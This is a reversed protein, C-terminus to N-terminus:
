SVDAGHTGVEKAIPGIYYLQAMSLIAGVWGVVFATGAALGIPLKTKDAWATWDYGKSRRFILQEEVTIAIWIAVWYGMLALFNTFIVALSNRGALACATYVIVGVTNWIVRPVRAAYRGLIQFDIGASYTPAIMNNIIGLALIVACFKGFGGLRNYGAAISAGQSVGGAALWDPDSKAGSALGAGIVLVPTFSLTLGLLSMLFTKLRPTQEPYYVFYDAAGPAYTISASLCLSFFSVRNPLIINARDCHMPWSVNVYRSGRITEPDGVSPTTTDFRGGASGVLIALVIVQSIWAYSSETLLKGIFTTM